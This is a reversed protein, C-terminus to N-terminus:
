ENPERPLANRNDRLEQRRLPIKDIAHSLERVDWPFPKRLKVSGDKGLLVIAFGRPRLKQRIKSNQSPNTDVLIVVDRETLAARRSELLAIQRKYRPDNPTDAFIVFPRKEWLFDNLDLEVAKYPGLDLVEDAMPESPAQAM